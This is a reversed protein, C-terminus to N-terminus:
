TRSCASPRRSSPLASSRRAGLRASRRRLHGRRSHPEHAARRVRRRCADARGARRHSRLQRPRLLARQVPRVRRGGDRRPGAGGDERARRPDCAAGGHGDRCAARQWPRDAARRQARRRTGRVGTAAGRPRDARGRRSQRRDTTIGQAILPKGQRLGERTLGDGAHTHVDIFGPALYRGAADVIKTAPAGALRGIAVIREGRVGVDARVWPNGAGDLVHAGTILLDLPAPSAQRAGASQVALLAVVWALCVALVALIRRMPISEQRSASYRRVPRPLRADHSDVAPMPAVIAPASAGMNSAASSPRVMEFSSYRFCSGFSRSCSSSTCRRSRVARKGTM